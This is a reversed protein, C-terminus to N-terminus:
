TVAAPSNPPSDAAPLALRGWRHPAVLVARDSSRLAAHLWEGVGGLADKWHGKSCLLRATDTMVEVDCPRESFRLVPHPNAELVWARGGSDLLVDLGM